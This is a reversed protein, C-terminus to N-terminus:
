VPYVIGRPRHCYRQVCFFLGTPRVALADGPCSYDTKNGRRCNVTGYGHGTRSIYLVSGKAPETKIHKKIEPKSFNEVAYVLHMKRLTCVSGRRREFFAKSAGGLVDCVTILANRLKDEGHSYPRGM